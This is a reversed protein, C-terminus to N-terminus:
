LSVAQGIPLRYQTYAPSFFYAVAESSSFMLPDAFDGVRVHHGAPVGSAPKCSSRPSVDAADHKGWNRANHQAHLSQLRSLSVIQSPRTKLRPRKIGM